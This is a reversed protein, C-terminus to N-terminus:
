LLALTFADDVTDRKLLSFLLEQIFCAHDLVLTSCNDHHSEILCTLGDADLVLNRDALACVVQELSNVKGGFVDDEVQVNQRDGSAHILVILVGLVEDDSGLLDLLLAGM